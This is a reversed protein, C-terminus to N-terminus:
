YYFQLSGGLSFDPSGDSLGKSLFLYLSRTKATPTYYFFSLELPEKSADTLAQSFYLYSGVQKSGALQKTLGATGYFVDHYTFDPTDGSIEYGLTGSLAYEDINKVLGAELSVDDEGTGFGKDVDATGFKYVATLRYEIEKRADPSLYYSGSLVLDGIGSVIEDKNRVTSSSMGSSGHNPRSSIIIDGESSAFLLPVSAFLSFNTKRYSISLPIRWLSTSDSTGYDGEEYQLGTLLSLDGQKVLGLRDRELANAAPFSGLLIFLILISICKNM